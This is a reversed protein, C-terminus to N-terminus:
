RVNKSQNGPAVASGASKSLEVADKGLDIAHQLGGPTIGSRVLAAMALAVLAAIMPGSADPPVVGAAGIWAAAGFLATAAAILGAKQWRNLGHLRNDAACGPLSRWRGQLVTRLDARLRNVLTQGNGPIGSTMEQLASMAAAKEAAKRIVAPHTTRLRMPLRQLADATHEISRNLRRIHLTTPTQSQAGYLVQLATALPLVVRFQANRSGLVIILAVTIVPGVAAAAMRVRWDDIVNSVLAVSLVGVIWAPTAFCIARVTSDYTLFRLLRAEGHTIQVRDPWRRLTAQLRMGPWPLALALLDLWQQGPTREPRDVVEDDPHGNAQIRGARAAAGQTREFVLALWTLADSIAALGIVAWDVGDISGGALSILLVILTLPAGAFLVAGLWVWGPPLPWGGPDVVLWILVTARPLGFLAILCVTMPTVSNPTGRPSRIDPQEGSGTPTRDVTEASM